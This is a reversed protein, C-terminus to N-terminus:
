RTAGKYAMGTLCSCDMRKDPVCDGSGGLYYPTGIYSAAAKAVREGANAPQSSDPKKQCSVGKANSAKIIKFADAVIWGERKSNRSVAIKYNDGKRLKWTGLKNWERGNRRQDILKISPGDYTSIRVTTRSNYRENSPWTACVTYFGTRPTKVKYRVSGRKSPNSVRYDKGYKQPNYKNLDWKRFVKVRDKTSNDVVQQYPAAEAESTAFFAVGLVFMSGILFGKLIGFTLRILSEGGGGTLAM